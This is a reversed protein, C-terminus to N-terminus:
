GDLRSWRVSSRREDRGADAQQQELKCLGSGVESCVTYWLLVAGNLCSAHPISVEPTNKLEQVLSQWPVGKKEATSVVLHKALVRLAKFVPPISFAANILFSLLSAGAILPNITNQPCLTNGSCSALILVFVLRQGLMHAQVPNRSMLNSRLLEPLHRLQARLSNLM